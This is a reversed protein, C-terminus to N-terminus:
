SMKIWASCIQPLIEFLPFFGCIRGWLGRSFQSSSESSQCEPAPLFTLSINELCKLACFVPRPVKQLSNWLSPSPCISVCVSM